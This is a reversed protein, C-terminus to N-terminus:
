SSSSSNVSDKKDDDSIIFLSNSSPHQSVKLLYPFDGTVTSTDLIGSGSSNFKLLQINTSSGAAVFIQDSSTDVDFAGITMGSSLHTSINYDVDTSIVGDTNSMKYLETETLVFLKGLSNSLINIIELDVFTSVGILDGDSSFEYIGMGENVVYCGGSLHNSCILTPSDLNTIEFLISLDNDTKIISTGSVIWCGLCEDDSPNEDEMPVSNQIVSLSNSSSSSLSSLVENNFDTKLIVEGDLRYINGTTWCSDIAHKTPFSVSDEYPLEGTIITFSSRYQSFIQQYSDTGFAIAGRSRSIKQNVIDM